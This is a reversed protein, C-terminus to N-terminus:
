SPTFPHSQLKVLRNLCVLIEMQTQALAESTTKINSETSDGDLDEPESPAQLGKAISLLCRLSRTALLVAVETAPVPM